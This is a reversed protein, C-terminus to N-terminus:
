NRFQHRIDEYRFCQGSEQKCTNGTNFLWNAFMAQDQYDFTSPITYFQRESNRRQFVDDVDQYLGDYYYKKAKEKVAPNSLNCGDLHPTNMEITLPNGFPNQKTPMRCQNSSEELALKKNTAEKNNFLKTDQLKDQENEAFTEFNYYKSKDLNNDDIDKNASKYNNYVVVTFLIGFVCIILYERKDYVLVMLLGFIIFFRAIANLKNEMSMGNTPIVEMFNRGLESPDDLWFKNLVM